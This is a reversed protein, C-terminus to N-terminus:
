NVKVFTNNRPVCVKVLNVEMLIKELIEVALVIDNYTFRQLLSCTRNISLM